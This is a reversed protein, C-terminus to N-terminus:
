NKNIAAENGENLLAIQTMNRFQYGKIHTSHPRFLSTQATIPRRAPRSHEGPETGPVHFTNKREGFLMPMRQPGNLRKNM